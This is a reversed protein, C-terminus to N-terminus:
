RPVADAAVALEAAPDRRDPTRSFVFLDESSWIHGPWSRYGRLWLVGNIRRLYFGKPTDDDDALPASAVTVSGPPARNESPPHGLFGEAQDTYQLRLHPGLELPCVSLGLGSAHELVQSWTGGRSLGLEAVAIEITNIVRPIASTEFRSDAFLQQAASNLQVLAAALRSLLEAKTAGGVRVLRVMRGASRSRDPQSDPTM